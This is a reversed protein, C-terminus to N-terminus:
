RGQMASVRFAFTDCPLDSSRVGSRYLALSLSRGARRPQVRRVEVARQALVVSFEALLGHIRNITATREDVCGLLRRLQVPQKCTPARRGVSRQLPRTLCLTGPDHM